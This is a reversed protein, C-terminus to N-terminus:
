PFPHKLEIKTGAAPILILGSVLGATSSTLYFENELYKPTFSIVGQSFIYAVALGFAAFVLSPNLLLRKIQVPFMKAAVTVKNGDIYKDEYVKTILKMREKRVLHHDSLWKPYMLYPISLMFSSIGVFIFPIWWAGVWAPDSETLTTESWPDVYVSLCASGLLFGAAPGLILFINFVGLHLSVFRPYVIEDMYATTLTYLVTAPFSLLISSIIFIALALNNGSSCDATFTRNDSCIEDSLSSSGSEYRGFLFQPLAFMFSAIGLLICQIGLVRPKHFFSAFYTVFVIGIAVALDYAIIIFGASLSSFQYRTQITSLVVSVYGISFRCIFWHNM